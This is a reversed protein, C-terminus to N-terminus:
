EGESFCDYRGLFGYLLKKNLLEYMDFCSLEFGTRKILHLASPNNNEVNTFVRCGLSSLYDTMVMWGKAYYNKDIFNDSWGGGHVSVAMGRECDDFQGHEALIWSMAIPTMDGTRYLVYCTSYSSYEDLFDRWEDMTDIDSVIKHWNELSFRGPALLDEGSYLRWIFRGDRPGIHCPPRDFNFGIM